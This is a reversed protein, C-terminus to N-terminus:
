ARVGIVPHPNEQGRNLEDISTAAEESVQGHKM